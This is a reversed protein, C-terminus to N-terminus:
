LCWYVLTFTSQIHILITQNVQLVGFEGVERFADRLEKVGIMDATEALLKPGMLEVFDEFDVRGGGLCCCCLNKLRQINMFATHRTQYM